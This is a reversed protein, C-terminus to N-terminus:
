ERGPILKQINEVMHVILEYFQADDNNKHWEYDREMRRECEGLETLAEQRLEEAIKFLNNM